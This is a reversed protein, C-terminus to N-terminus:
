RYADISLVNLRPGSIKNVVDIFIGGIYIAIEGLIDVPAVGVQVRRVGGIGTHNTIGQAWILRIPKGAPLFYNGRATLSCSENPGKIEEHYGIVSLIEAQCRHNRCGIRLQQFIWPASFYM